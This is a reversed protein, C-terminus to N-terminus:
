AQEDIFHTCQKNPSQPPSDHMHTSWDSTRNGLLLGQSPSGRLHNMFSVGWPLIAPSTPLWFPLLFALLPVIDPWPGPFSSCHQGRSPPPLEATHTVHWPQRLWLWLAPGRTLQRQVLACLSIYMELCKTISPPLVSDLQGLVSRWPSFCYFPTHSAHSSCWDDLHSPLHYIGLVQQGVTAVLLM